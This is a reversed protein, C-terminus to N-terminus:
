AEALVTIHPSGNQVDKGLVSVRSYGADGLMRLLDPEFPILSRASLGSIPDTAGGESHVRVRYSRDGVVYEATTDDGAAAGGLLTRRDARPEAYHTGLFLTPAHRRCWELLRFPEPLHYLIGLAVVLDFLGGLSAHARGSALAELDGLVFTTRDLGYKEKIRACRRLNDERGEIAVTERVGLKELIVSHHGELPGLELVRLDRLDLFYLLYKLRHDDGFETRRYALRSPRYTRNAMHLVNYVWGDRIVDDTVPEPEDIWGPRVDIHADARVVGARSLEFGRAEAVAKARTVARRQAARIIESTKM